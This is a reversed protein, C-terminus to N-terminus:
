KLCNTRPMAWKTDIPAITLELGVRSYLRNSEFIRTLIECTRRDAIFADTTNFAPFPQTILVRYNRSDPRDTALIMSVPM